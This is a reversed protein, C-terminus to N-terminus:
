VGYIINNLKKIFEEKRQEYKIPNKQKYIEVVQLFQKVKQKTEDTINPIKDVEANEMLRSSIAMNPNRESAMLNDNKFIGKGWKKDFLERREKLRMFEPTHLKWWAPTHKNHYYKFKIYACKLGKKLMQMALDNDELGYGTGYREDFKIRFRTFVDRKFVGYQTFALPKDRFCLPADLPPLQTDAEKEENTYYYPDFGICKIESPATELRKILYDFSGPVYLVDTDLMLFYKGLAKKIMFNRNYSQGKIKRWRWARIQHLYQDTCYRRLVKITSDKSCNDVILIETDPEKILREISRAMIDGNELNLLLASKLPKKIM